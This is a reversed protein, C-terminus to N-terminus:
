QDMMAQRDAELAPLFSSILEKFKLIAEDNRKTKSTTGIDRALEVYAESINDRGIINLADDFSTQELKHIRNMKMVLSSVIDIDTMKDPINLNKRFQLRVLTYALVEAPYLEYLFEYGPVIMWYYPNGATLGMQGALRNIITNDPLVKDKRETKVYKSTKWDFEEEFTHKLIGAAMIACAKNFSVVNTVNSDNLDKVVVLHNDTSTKLILNKSQLKEKNEKSKSLHAAVTNVHCYNRYNHLTFNSVNQSASTFPSIEVDVAKLESNQADLLKGNSVNTLKIVKLKAGSGLLVSNEQLPGSAPKNSSSSGKQNKPPM